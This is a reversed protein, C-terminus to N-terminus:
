VKINKIILRARNNWTYYKAKQFARRTMERNGKIALKIKAVYDSLDDAKFFLVERDSVVEKISKVDSAVISKSSALYEFLKLPSTDERSKKSKASLPLLLVDAAKLWIPIQSYPRHGVIKLNKIGKAKDKAPKINKDIVSGGVVYFEIAPLAKVASFILEIGKDKYLNGTYLALTETQPLNLQTRAKFKSIERFFEQSVSDPAYITKAGLNNWSNQISKTICVIKKAKKAVLTDILGGYPSDHSEFIVQLGALCRLFAYIKSRTYIIGKSKLTALFASLSFTTEQLLYALSGTNIGIQHFPLLDFNFIPKLNFNNKVQYYDFINQGKLAQNIQKRKPIVLTVSIGCDAFAECMKAIQIGHAKETPLRANAVYTLLM